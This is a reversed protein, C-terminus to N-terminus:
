LRIGQRLDRRDRRHRRRSGRQRRRLDAGRRARRPNASPPRQPEAAEAGQPRRRLVPGQHHRLGALPVPRPYATPRGGDKADVRADFRHRRQVADAILPSVFLDEVERRWPTSGKAEIAARVEKEIARDKWTLAHVAGARLRRPLGAAKPHISLVSFYAAAREAQGSFFCRFCRPGRLRRRLRTAGAQARALRGEGRLPLHSVLQVPTVGDSFPRDDVSATLCKSSFPSKGSATSHREGVIRQSSKGSDRALERRHGVIGDAHPGGPPPLFSQFSGALRLKRPAIRRGPRQQDPPEAEPVRDLFRRRHATM